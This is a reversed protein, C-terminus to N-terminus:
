MPSKCAALPALGKRLAPALMSMNRERVNSIVGDVRTRWVSQDTQTDVLELILTGQRYEAAMIVGEPQELPTRDRATVVYQARLDAPTTGQVTSLGVHQFEEKLVKELLIQNEPDALWGAPAGKQLALVVSRYRCPTPLASIENRVRVPSICGPAFLMLSLLGAVCVKM